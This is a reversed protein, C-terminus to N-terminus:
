SEVLDPCTWVNLNVSFKRAKLDFSSKIDSTRKASIEEFVFRGTLLNGSVSNFALESGTRQGVMTLILRVTPEFFVTNALIAAGITLALGVLAFNRIPRSIANWSQVSDKWSLKAPAHKSPSRVRRKDFCLWSVINLLLSLLLAALEALLILGPVVFATLFEALLIVLAEMGLNKREAELPM